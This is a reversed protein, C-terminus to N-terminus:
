ADAGGHLRNNIWAQIENNSWGTVRESIKRRRPFNGEKEMRDIQSDSFGSVERVKPRRLIKDEM